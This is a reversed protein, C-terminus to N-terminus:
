IQDPAQTPQSLERLQDIIIKLADIQWPDLDIDNCETISFYSAGNDLITVYVDQDMDPILIIISSDLINDVHYKKEEAWKIYKDKWNM